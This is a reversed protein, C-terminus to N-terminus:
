KSGQVQQFSCVDILFHAAPSQSFPRRTVIRWLLQQFTINENHRDTQKDTQECPPGMQGNGHHKSGVACPQICGVPISEQQGCIKMVSSLLDQLAVKLLSM